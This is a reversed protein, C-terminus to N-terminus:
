SFRASVRFEEGAEVRVGHVRVSLGDAVLAANLDFTRGVMERVQRRAFRLAVKVFPNRSGVRVDRLTFVGDETVHIRAEARASARLLRWGVGAFGAIRIGDVGEQTADLRVRGLRIGGSELAPRMVSTILPALDSVRASGEFTGRVGAVDSDLDVSRISEPRGPESPEAYVIWAIPVDFVQLDFSM